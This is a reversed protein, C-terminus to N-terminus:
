LPSTSALALLETVSLEDLDDMSVVRQCLPTDVELVWVSREPDEPEMLEVLMGNHNIRRVNELILGVRM